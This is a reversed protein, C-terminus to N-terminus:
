TVYKLLTVCRYEWPQTCIQLRFNDLLCFLDVTNLWLVLSSVKDEKVAHSVVIREGTELGRYAFPEFGMNICYFNAAQHTNLFFM